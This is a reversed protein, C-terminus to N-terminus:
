VVFFNDVWKRIPVFGHAAYISVLMNAISGFVGASSRLGFPTALDLYTKGHWMVCLAHQQEPHVPTIRYAASVDFTAAACGDPLGLILQATKTFTGWETLFDDSQIGANV